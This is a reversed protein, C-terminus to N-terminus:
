LYKLWWYTYRQKIKGFWRCLVYMIGTVVVWAVYATWLSPTYDAPWAQPSEFSWMRWDAYRLGHYIVALLHGTMLHLIYFFFPVRGFVQFFRALAGHLNELLALGIMIPGLTMCLYLLSPPYKTTNLFSLLTYVAGREQVTWPQPDGYTNVYRIVIFLIILTSGTIILYKIRRVKDYIYLEGMLFGLTMVAPWPILPYAVFLPPVWRPQHLFQWWYENITIGDLLNHGTILVVTFLIMFWRPLHILLSLIIMCWGITWIVQVFYFETVSFTWGFHVFTFEIFILWIGRSLLFRTLQSRSVKRGFIYASVGALFVFGPACYHTIWRTFFWAPTTLSVDEPAFATTAFFDRVHDLAMLVIIVGRLIDISEIRKNTSVGQM